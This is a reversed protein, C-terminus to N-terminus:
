SNAAKIRAILGDIKEKLDLISYDPETQTIKQAFAVKDYNKLGRVKTIKKFREWKVNHNVSPHTEQLAKNFITEGIYNEIERGATLWVMCGNSIFDEKVRKKTSNIRKHSSDTDRDIVIAAQRNLKCLQIFEKVEPNDFALHSM